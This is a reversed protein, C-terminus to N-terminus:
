FVQRTFYSHFLAVASFGTNGKSKLEGIVLYSISGVITADILRPYTIRSRISFHM